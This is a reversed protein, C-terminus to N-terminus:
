KYLAIFAVVTQLLTLLLLLVAAVFSIFAWPTGFYDRKLSTMWRHRRHKCYEKMRWCAISYFNREIMINKCLDSFLVVIEKTSGLQNQIIGDDVLLSVDENTNILFHMFMGFNSADKSKLHCYEYAIMNRFLIEFSDDIIIKPMKLVGRREKFSVNMMCKKQGHFSIGCEHLETATLPWSSLFDDVSLGFFHPIHRPQTLHIRLFDVLHNVASADIDFYGEKVYSMGERVKSFYGRLLEIFSIDKLSPQASACLNYLHNLLFFPLQNELLLLDKFIGNSFRWLFSTDLDRFEAVMSGIVYMVVFCSDYILLQIFEDRKMEITEVYYNRAREEWSLFKKIMENWDLKAVTLFNLVYSGKKEKILDNQTRYYHLPGISIVQPSYAKPNGKRLLKPVMYISREKSFSSASRSIERFMSQNVSGVMRDYIVKIEEDRSKTTNNNSEDYVNIEM